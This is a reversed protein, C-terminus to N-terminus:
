PKRQEFTVTSDTTTVFSDATFQKYNRFETENRFCVTVKQLCVLNEARAPLLLDRGAVVAMDYDVTTEVVKLPYGVPINSPRMEIRLPRSTQADIWIRGQYAPKMKYGEFEIEWQSSEQAVSYAFRLAPRKAHVTNKEFKMRAPSADTLVHLQILGYEGGSWAGSTVATRSPQKDNIRINTAHEEGQFYIVDATIRDLLRWQM